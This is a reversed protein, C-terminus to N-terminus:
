CRPGINFAPYQIQDSFQPISNNQLFWILSDYATRLAGETWGSEFSYFDGAFYINSPNFKQATSQNYSYMMENDNYTGPSYLKSCGKYLPEKEWHIVNYEQLGTSRTYKDIYTECWTKFQDVNSIGTQDAGIIM